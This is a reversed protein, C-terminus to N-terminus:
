WVTVVTVVTPKRSSCSKSLVSCHNVIMRIMVPTDVTSYVNVSVTCSTTSPSSSFKTPLRM